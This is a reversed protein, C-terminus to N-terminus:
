QLAKTTGDVLGRYIREAQEPNQNLLTILKKGDAEGWLRVQEFSVPQPQGSRNGSPGTPRGGVYGQMLAAMAEGLDGKDLSEEFRQHGEAMRGLNRMTRAIGENMAEPSTMAMRGWTEEAGVEYFSYFHQKDIIRFSNESLARNLASSYTVTVSINSQFPEHKNEHAAQIFRPMSFTSYDVRQAEQTYENLAKTAPPFKRDSSLQLYQLLLTEDPDETATLENLFLYFPAAASGLEM